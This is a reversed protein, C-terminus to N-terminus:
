LRDIELRALDYARAAEVANTYTGLPIRCGNPFCITASFVDARKAPIKYSPIVKNSVLSLNSRRCNLTNGDLHQVRCEPMGMLWHALYFQGEPTTVRVHGHAGMSLPMDAAASDDDLQVLHRMGSNQVVTKTLM